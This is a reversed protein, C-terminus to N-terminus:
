PQEMTDLIEFRAAQALAERMMQISIGPGQHGDCLPSAVARAPSLGHGTIDEAGAIDTLISYKHDEGVVLGM